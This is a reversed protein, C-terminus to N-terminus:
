FKVNVKEENIAELQVTARRPAMSSCSPKKSTIKGICSENLSKYFSRTPIGNPQVEADEEPLKIVKRPAIYSSSPKNNSQLLGKKGAQTNCSENQSKNFSRTPIRRPQLQEDEEPQETAQRPTIYSCSPMNNSQILGKKGVKTICSENQYKYFSRTPIRRPHVQEFEPQVQAPTTATAENDLNQEKEVVRGEQFELTSQSKPKPVIEESILVSQNMNELTEVETELNITVDSHVINEVAEIKLNVTVYSPIIAQNTTLDSQSINELAETETELIQNMTVDSRSINGLAETGLSQNTKPDSQSINELAETELHQSITEDSTTRGQFFKKIFLSELM